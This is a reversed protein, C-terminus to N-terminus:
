TRNEDHEENEQRSPRSDLSGGLGPRCVDPLHRCRLFLSDVGRLQGTDDIVNERGLMADVTEQDDAVSVHDHIAMEIGKSGVADM